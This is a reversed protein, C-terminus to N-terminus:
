FSYKRFVYAFGLFTFTVEECITPYLSRLNPGSDYDNDPRNADGMEWVVACDEIGTRTLSLIVDM